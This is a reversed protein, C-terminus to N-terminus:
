SRVKHDFAIVVADHVAAHILAMHRAAVPTPIGRGIMEEAAVANWRYASGGTAWYTARAASTASREAALRKVGRTRGRHSLPGSAGARSGRREICRFNVRGRDRPAQANAETGTIATGVLAAAVAGGRWASTKWGFAKM